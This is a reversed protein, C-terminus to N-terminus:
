KIIQRVFRVSINVTPGIDIQKSYSSAPAIRFKLQCDSYKRDHKSHRYSLFNPFEQIRQVLLKKRKLQLM